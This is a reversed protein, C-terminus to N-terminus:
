RSSKYVREGSENKTSEITLGHKKSATSLFGRLSHKQWSTAKILEGLTAGKPRAILALITAGKSEARPASSKTREAKAAKKAPKAAKKPKAVSPKASKKSKATKATSKKATPKENTEPVNVAAAAAAKGTTEITTM